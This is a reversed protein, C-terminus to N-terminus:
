QKWKKLNNIILIFYCAVAVDIIGWLSKDGIYIPAIPNFLISIAILTWFWFDKKKLIFFCYAYYISTGFVAIRLFTYFAYPWSFFTLLLLAVSIIAPLKNFKTEKINEMNSIGSKIPDSQLLDTNRNNKALRDAEKVEGILSYVGNKYEVINKSIITNIKYRYQRLHNETYDKAWDLFEGIQTLNANKKECLFVLLRYANGTLLLEKGNEDFVRKGETDVQFYQHQYIM